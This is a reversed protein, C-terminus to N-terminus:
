LLGIFVTLVWYLIMFILLFCSLVLCRYRLFVCIVFFFIVFFLGALCATLGQFFAEGVLQTITHTNSQCPHLSAVM